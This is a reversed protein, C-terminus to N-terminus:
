LVGCQSMGVGYVYGKGTFVIQGNEIAAKAILTSKLKQSGLANRLEPGPVQLNNNIAIQVARGSPGKQVFQLSDIKNVRHGLKSLAALM